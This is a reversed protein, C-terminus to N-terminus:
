IAKRAISEFLQDFHPPIEARMHPLFQVGIAWKCSPNELAEIVGDELSWAVSMLQSSKNVELIGDRHRSNVRVFGGSGVTAALKSGPSIFIRHFASEIGNQTILEAHNKINISVTGHSAVNMIHMGRGIGLIPIDRKYASNLLSIEFEDNKINYYDTHLWRVGYLSPHIGADGALILGEVSRIVDETNESNDLILKCNVEYKKLLKIYISANNENDIVLGITPM